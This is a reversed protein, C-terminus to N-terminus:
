RLGVFWLREDGKDGSSAAAECFHAPAIQKEVRGSTLEVQEGLIQLAFEALREGLDISGTRAETVEGLMSGPRDFRAMWVLAKEIMRKGRWAHNSAAITYFETAKGGELFDLRDLVVDICGPFSGECLQAVADGRFVHRDDDECQV